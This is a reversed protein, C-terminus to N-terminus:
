ISEMHSVMYGGHPLIPKIEERRPVVVITEWIVGEGDVDDVSGRSLGKRFLFDRLVAIVYFTINFGGGIRCEIDVDPQRVVEAIDVRPVTDPISM